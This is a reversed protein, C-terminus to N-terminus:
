LLPTRRRQGNKHGEQPGAGVPGRREQASPEFYLCLVGSPSEGSCLTPIVERSKSNMSRKICDLIHNAKQAALTYQQKMNLKENVLVELNKEPSSEIWEEGLRSNHKPNGWGMHLVKCEAKNFKM